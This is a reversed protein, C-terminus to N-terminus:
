DAVQNPPDFYMDFGIELNRDSLLRSVEVSVGFGRNSTALFIGCFVDVAYNSTLSSWIGSDSPLRALLMRIGDDVDGDGACEGSDIKLLWRGKKPFPNGKRQASSPQCGLLASIQDPDLEEGYVRLAVQWRDVPGGFWVTGEPAGVPPERSIIKNM